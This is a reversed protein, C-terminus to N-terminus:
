SARAGRAAAARRGLPQVRPEGPHQRRWVAGRAGARRPERRQRGLARARRGRVGPRGRGRREIGTAPAAGGPPHRHRGRDHGRGREGGVAGHGRRPRDGLVLWRGRRRARERDGRDGRRRGRARGGRSGRRTGTTPQRRCWTCAREVGRAAGDGPRRRGGGRAGSLETSADPRLRLARCGPHADLDLVLATPVVAPNAVERERLHHPSDDDCRVGLGRRHLGPDGPRAGYEPRSRCSCSGTPTWRCGASATPLCCPRPAAASRGGRDRSWTAGDAEYALVELQRVSASADAEM